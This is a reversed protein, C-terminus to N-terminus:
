VGYLIRIKNSDGEERVVPKHPIYFEAGKVEKPAKEM